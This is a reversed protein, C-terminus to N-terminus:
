LHDSEIRQHIETRNPQHTISDLTFWILKYWGKDHAKQVNWKWVDIMVSNGTCANGFRDTFYRKPYIMKACVTCCKRFVLETIFTAGQDYHRWQGKLKLAVAVM